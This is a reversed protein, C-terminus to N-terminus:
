TRWSSHRAEAPLGTSASELLALTARASAVWSDFPVPPQGTRLSALFAEIMQQQGKGRFRQKRCGEASFFTTRSFDEITATRGASSVEIIEKPLSRHGSTDFLITALSGDAFHLVAHVNEDPLEGQRAGFLKTLPVGVLHHCWDVFHCAEGLIRGGQAPQHLWHDAPLPVAHVTYRISLPGGRRAPAGRPEGFFCTGSFFEQVACTAPAFRRNHGVVLTVPRAQYADVIQDLEEQSLCLPKEVFVAKGAEIAARVLRAHLDHRTAIFVLDIEPDHLVDPPDTTCRAFGFEEAVKRATIGHATAVTVLRVRAHRKLVPLLYSRAYSGAGIFGVSLIGSRRAPLPALPLTPAPKREAVPYELLVGVSSEVNSTVIEYAREAQDIRFRHTILPAVQVQGRAVLELFVALNRGLTWPVYARPYDVGHQEYLPDYRGPGYSRAYVITLEKAYCAARPFDTRVDGVIVLKARDAAAQVAWEVPASGTSAAAVFVCSFGAPVKWRRLTEEMSAPNADAVREIGLQQAMALRDLRLDFGAVRCGAARLLQALLLGVPGLGLVAVDEGIATQSLHVAHLAVGGLTVFAAEELSVGEPVRVCLNRPVFNIESHTAADTGACAVRDGPQLHDSDCTELVIGACSYGLARAVDLQQQVKRFTQWFGERRFNELVKRVLDPRRLAKGLVSSKGLELAARETGPSILSYATAVLVGPGRVAPPPVEEVRLAGSRFDQVLQKM